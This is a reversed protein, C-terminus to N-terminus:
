LRSMEYDFEITKLEGNTDVHIRILLSKIYFLRYTGVNRIIAYFQKEQAVYSHEIKHLKLYRSVELKTTGIPLADVLEQKFRDVNSNNIASEPLDMRVKLAFIALFIGTIVVLGLVIKGFLQM